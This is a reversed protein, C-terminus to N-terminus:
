IVPLLSLKGMSDENKLKLDDKCDREKNTVSYVLNNQVGKFKILIYM